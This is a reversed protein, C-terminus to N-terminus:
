INDFATRRPDAPDRVSALRAVSTRYEGFLPLAETFLKQVRSDSIRREYEKVAEQHFWVDDKLLDALEDREEDTVEPKLARTEPNPLTETINRSLVAVGPKGLLYGTLVAFEDFRETLGFLGVRTKLKQLCHEASATGTPAFTGQGTDDFFSYIPGFAGFALKAYEVFSMGKRVDNHWPSGPVVMTHNYHSLLRGFPDRVTSMILHPMWARRFLPHDLRYHGTLAYARRPAPARYSEFFKEEPVVTFFSQTRMDFHLTFFDIQRLLSAVTIGGTKPVHPHFVLDPGYPQVDRNVLQEFTYPAAARRPQEIPPAPKVEIAAAAATLKLAACPREFGEELFEILGEVYLSEVLRNDFTVTPNSESPATGWVNSFPWAYQRLVKRPEGTRPALAALLQSRSENM